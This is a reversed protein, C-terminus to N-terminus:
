PESHLAAVDAASIPDDFQNGFHTRIYNVVNAVQEDNLSTPGFFFEFNEVPKFAPMNRRGNLVTVVVYNASALAPNGAFAPYRGAGQAGRGEPMHCGQCIQTYIQEGSVLDSTNGTILGARDAEEEEAVASLCALCMSGAMVSRLLISKFSASM